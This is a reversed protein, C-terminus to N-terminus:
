RFCAAPANNVHVFAGGHQRCAACRAICEALERGRLEREDRCIENCESESGPLQAEADRSIFVNALAAGALGAAFRKLVVRRSTGSALAKALEDFQRGM